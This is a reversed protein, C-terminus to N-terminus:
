LQDVKAYLEELTGDNDIVIDCDEPKILGDMKASPNIEVDRQVYVVTGGLEKIRNLENPHRCDAIVTRYQEVGNAMDLWVDPHVERLKTGVEVWIDVATFEKGADNTYLVTKRDDRFDNYHKEDKLGHQGYLMQCLAKLPSAFSYKNFNKNAVLYDAATDKGSGSYGVFAILKPTNTEIDEFKDLTADKQLKSSLFIYIDLAVFFGWLSTIIVKDRIGLAHGSRKECLVSAKYGLYTGVALYAWIIIIFYTTNVLM